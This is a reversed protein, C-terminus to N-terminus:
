PCIGARQIGKTLLEGFRGPAPRTAPSLALYGRGEGHDVRVAVSWSGGTLEGILRAAQDDRTDIWAVYINGHRDLVLAPDLFLPYRSKVVVARLGWSGGAPRYSFFIERRASYDLM